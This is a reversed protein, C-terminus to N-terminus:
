IWPRQIVAVAYRNRREVATIYRLSASHLDTQLSQNPIWRLFFLARLM